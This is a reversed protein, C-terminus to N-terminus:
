LRKSFKRKDLEKIKSYDKAEESSFANWLILIAEGRKIKKEYKYPADASYEEGIWGQRRAYSMYNSAWHGTTSINRRQGIANCLTVVFEAVTM